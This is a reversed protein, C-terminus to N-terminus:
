ITSKIRNILVTRLKEGEWPEPSLQTHTVLLNGVYGVFYLAVSVGVLVIGGLLGAGIVATPLISADVAAVGLSVLFLLSGPRSLDDASLYVRQWWNKKYDPICLEAIEKAQDETFRVPDIQEYDVLEELSSLEASGTDGESSLWWMHRGAAKQHGLIGEDRLDRLRDNLQTSSYGFEGFENIQSTVLAPIQKEENASRLIAFLEEDTARPESQNASSHDPTM